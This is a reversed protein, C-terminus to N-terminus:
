REWIPIQNRHMVRWPIAECFSHLYTHVKSAELRRSIGPAATQGERGCKCPLLTWCVMLLLLSQGGGHLCCVSGTRALFIKEAM